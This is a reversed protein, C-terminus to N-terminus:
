KSNKKPRGRRKKPTEEVKLPKEKKKKAQTTKNACECKKDCTAENLKNLNASMSGFLNVFTQTMEGSVQLKKTNYLYRVMPVVNNLIDILKEMYCVILLFGGSVVHLVNEQWLGVFIFVVATLWCIIDFMRTLFNAFKM